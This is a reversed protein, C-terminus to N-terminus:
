HSRLQEMRVILLVSMYVNRLWCDRRLKALADLTDRTLFYICFFVCEPRKCQPKSNTFTLYRYQFQVQFTKLLSATQM